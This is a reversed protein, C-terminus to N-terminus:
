LMGYGGLGVIAAAFIGLVISVVIVVVASVVMYPIVKDGPTGMVPPLGLYFLYLAYLAALIVLVALAPVLDLVGAVWVPTMAYIVLKLAQVPSSRSQFTPALKEVILAALWVGVLSLVWSVIAGAFGRVIGIRVTGFFPGSVGVVTMGIFRCFAPIASLPVAYDRFLAAVDGSEGAITRWESEPKTIINVVRTQLSM